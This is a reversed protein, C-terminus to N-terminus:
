LLVCLVGGAIVSLASFVSVFYGALDGTIGGFRLSVFAYRVLAIIAATFIAAAARWDIWVMFAACLAIYIWSTIKVAARSARDKFVYLLGSNKACKFHCITLACVARSLTYSACVCLMIRMNDIETMFAFYLLFYLVAGIIAFAGTHPDKLIELKRDREAHSSLADTTDIFGDTHIGGSVLVPIVSMIAARAIAGFGMHSCLWYALAEMAGVVIGVLPFFCLVYKMNRDNWKVNPVPLKSYMAFAVCLSKLVDM